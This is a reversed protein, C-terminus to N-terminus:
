AVRVTASGAAVTRRVVRGFGDHEQLTGRGLADVTRVRRGRADYEHRVVGGLADALWFLVRHRLDCVLVPATLISTHARAFSARAYEVGCFRFPRSADSPHDSVVRAVVGGSHLQDVGFVISRPSHAGLM